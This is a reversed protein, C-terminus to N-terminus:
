SNRAAEASARAINSAIEETAASQKEIAAAISSVIDSVEQVVGSVSKIGDVASATSKQISSIKGRIDETATAAQHALEKVENAVVAFGKGSTGARAAEITANLALLNTQASISNITETVKSIDTASKGLGDMVAMVSRAKVVADSTINRAKDANMAIDTITQSMSEAATSVVSLDKGLRQASERQAQGIGELELLHSKASQETHAKEGDLTSRLFHHCNEPRNLGNHIALAMKECSGYGCSSCNYLDEPKHKQMRDYTAQLETPTPKRLRQADSRRVYSCDYLGPKWYRDVLKELARRTRRESLPGARRHKGQMESNRQEILSEVEDPSADVMDTGTGGNCGLDCNLCDVLLPAKGKDVMSSLRDLYHYIVHPGEIKRTLGRIAPNWREATRQLGGPTSFLVAREAPPNAYDVRPFTQLSIRNKEFHRKLAHMTVDGLGVSSFERKKAVCPSLILLKHSRYQPYYERIMKLTHMMPSDAPALYPLLEPRYLEIYNVLAPCPQSIILKPQNHKLHELYSRITLEAGFSVDFVAAVGISALWGNLNLYQNPFSSAVAPAAIAVMPVRKESDKLFAATDDMPLRADHTCARLCQGCGVCLDHNLKITEGSGDNCYKVPCASICAHCNVCKADDVSIVPPLHHDM